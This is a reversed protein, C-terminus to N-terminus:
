NKREKLVNIVEDLTKEVSDKTRKRAKESQQIAQRIDVLIGEARKPNLIGKKKAQAFSDRIQKM